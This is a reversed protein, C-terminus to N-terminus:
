SACDLVRAEATKGDFRSPVRRPISSADGHAQRGDEKGREGDEGELAASLDVLL